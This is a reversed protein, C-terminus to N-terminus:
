LLAKRWLLFDTYSWLFFIAPVKSVSWCLAQASMIPWLGLSRICASPFIDRDILQGINVATNYSIKCCPPWSGLNIELSPLCKRLQLVSPPFLGWLCCCCFFIHRCNHFETFCLSCEPFFFFRLIEILWFWKGLSNMKLHCKQFVFNEQIDHETGGCQPPPNFHRQFDAVHLKSVRSVVHMSISPFKPIYEDKEWVTFKSSPVASSGLYSTPFWFM